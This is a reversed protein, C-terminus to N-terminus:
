QRLFRDRGFGTVRGDRDLDGAGAFHDKEPHRFRAFFLDFDALYGYGGVFGAREVQLQLGATHRLAHQALLAPQLHVEFDGVRRGASGRFGGGARHRQLQRFLLTALLLLLCGTGLLGGCTSSRSAARLIPPTAAEAPRQSSLSGSLVNRSKEESPKVIRKKTRSPCIWGCLSPSRTGSLSIVLSLSSFSM